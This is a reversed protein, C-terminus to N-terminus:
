SCIANDTSSLSEAPLSSSFDPIPVSMPVLPIMLPMTVGSLSVTVPECDTATCEGGPYTVSINADALAPLLARMRSKVASDNADCVVAVRAGLRTAEVATGVFLMLRSFEVVGAVLSFFLVFTVAFEASTAGRLRHPGIVKPRRM